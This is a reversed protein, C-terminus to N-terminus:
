DDQYKEVIRRAACRVAIEQHGRYKEAVKRADEISDMVIMTHDDHACYERATQEPNFEDASVFYDHNGTCDYVEVAPGSKLLAALEEPVDEAYGYVKIAEAMNDYIIYDWGLFASAYDAFSDCHWCRIPLQHPVSIVEHNWFFNM